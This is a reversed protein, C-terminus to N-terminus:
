FITLKAIDGKMRFRNDINEIYSLYASPIFLSKDEAEDYREKAIQKKEEFTKGQSWGVDFLAAYEVFNIEHLKHETEYRKKNWEEFEFPTEFDVSDIEGLDHLFTQAMIHHGKETPHVRDPNMIGEQGLLPMFAAKFDVIPCDYKQAIKRFEVELIDMASQCDCNEAPVDSVQDHPVPICIIPTAGSEMIQEVIGEYSKVCCDIAQKKLEVLNELNENEKIYLLRDIDNIGFMVSVYDPNHILCESQIYQVAKRASGGSVGCNFCKIKYKKRLIQYVEAMWMGAATISDGLFCIIDRDKFM